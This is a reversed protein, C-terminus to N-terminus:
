IIEKTLTLFAKLNNSGLLKSYNMSSDRGMVMDLVVAYFM